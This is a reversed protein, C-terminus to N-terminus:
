KKKIKKKQNKITKKLRGKEKEEPIDEDLPQFRLNGNNRQNIGILPNVYMFSSSSSTPRSKIQEKLSGCYKEILFNTLSNLCLKFIVM